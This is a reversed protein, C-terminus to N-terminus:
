ADKTTNKEGEAPSATAQGPSLVGKPTARSANKVVTAFRNLTETVKNLLSPLSDLTKLQKQVLSVLVPLAKLKTRRRKVRMQFLLQEDQPFEPTFFAYRTDKLLDSLDEQKIKKSIGDARSEKNTGLDIQAAKLGDGASKTQDSSLQSHAGDEKTAGLSTIGGAAQHAKKHMEGVVLTPLLLYSPSKDKALSSQTEKELQSIKSKSAEIKSEYICKLSQKRILRSKAEPKKGQPVEETHLSPKPAKSDVHLNLNCIVKIHDTFPPGETQNPKKYVIDYNTLQSKTWLINACCEAAAVYEAEVSTSKRDMNCGAYEFDSYEKLDFGLCKPYWMSLSPTGKLYRFIRKIAILHSEKPNAQYRAYFSTLFQIDPRSATLYMLSGIMGRHQTDNIAKGSLDPGLNNPTVIPTKVLSGNVDYKKLLDKVYKEQNISIGREYQKIHFRLFYTFVGMMSMEYRQTMLKAFQKCLKICARPAQKLGYFAKDLICVHNPFEYSEFGPPQKGFVEEKLKGKLFASKVNIQYVIFNMYTAFALFIWIAELRTVPAFTEDYDIGEQKKPEEESLFDVFLCEHASTAGIEKAMARTLMGAGPNGIINVLKIYKNSTDEVRPSSSHESIQIDKTNLLNDIVKEDTHNSHESHDVNLIADTQVSQDNQDTQGNKDPSVKTELVVPEPFEYPEIFSVVNNNTQCRQSPEYPHIYEDPPYRENKAININDVSPKLFKIADPSEDFIIHYTEETQQRRKNFTLSESPRPSRPAIMVAKKKSNFMTGRKEDFHVIYKADYLQSISILNYKLGNVFAVKTFVRKTPTKSRNANSLETRTLKLAEAKKAQLAEGQNKSIQLKLDNLEKIVIALPPDDKIKVIKLKGAPASNVKLALSSKNGKAPALKKLPPLPTSCVSYEDTSDYKTVLSDIFAVSPNTTNRQSEAPLILMMKEALTMLVKVEVMENDDSSMEEKDWEYAEAILGKNKVTAAKSASASQTGKKFFRKSKTLLDRGQYEEELDNLYEHSSRTNEEDNHSDQIDSMILSKLRQDLNAANREDETWQGEPKRQGATVPIFPGNKIINEFHPEIGLIHYM